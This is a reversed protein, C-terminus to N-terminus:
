NRYIGLIYPCVYSTVCNTLSSPVSTVTLEEGKKVPMITRVRIRNTTGETHTFCSPRCSHNARSARLFLGDRKGMSYKNLDLVRRLRVENPVTEGDVFEEAGQLSMAEDMKGEQVGGDSTWIAREDIVTTGAPIDYKAVVGIGRGPLAMPAVLSDAGWDDM